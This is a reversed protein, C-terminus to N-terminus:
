LLADHLAQITAEKAEIDPELGHKRIAASTAPGISVLRAGRTDTV